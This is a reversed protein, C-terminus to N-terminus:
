LHRLMLPLSDASHTTSLSIRDNNCQLLHCTQFLILFRSISAVPIAQGILLSWVQLVGKSVSTLRSSIGIEHTKFRNTERKERRVDVMTSKHNLQDNEIHDSALTFRDETMERDGSLEGRHRVVEELMQFKM